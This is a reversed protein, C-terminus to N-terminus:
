YSKGLARLRKFVLSRDLSYADIFQNITMDRKNLNCSGCVHVCNTDVSLGGLKVPYIHDLHPSEGIECGCYPCEHDRQARAKLPRAADRTADKARAIIARDLSKKEKRQEIRDLKDRERNEIQDSWELRSEASRITDEIQSRRWAERSSQARLEEELKHKERVKRGGEGLLRDFFALYKTEENLISIRRSLDLLDQKKADLGRLERKAEEIEKYDRSRGRTAWEITQEPTFKRKRYM